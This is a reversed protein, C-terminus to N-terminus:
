YVIITAAARHPGSVLSAQYSGRNRYTHSYTKTVQACNIAPVSIVSQVSGDGYDLSYDAGGCVNATNVVVQLSVALPGNGAVPAVSLLGGVSPAAASASGKTGACQKAIEARTKGGVVGFGTSAADGTTVINYKAQYRKVAAETASSFTGNVQNEPYVGPDQALYQQLSKVDNGTAGLQLTRSLSPCTLTSSAAEAVAVLGLLMFLGVLLALAISRIRAYMDINNCARSVACCRIGMQWMEQYAWRSEQSVWPKGM